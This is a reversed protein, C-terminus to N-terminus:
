FSPRGQLSLGANEALQRGGSYAKTHSYTTLEMANYGTM